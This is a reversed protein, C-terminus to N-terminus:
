ALFKKLDEAKALGVLRAGDQRILAPVGRAGSLEWARQWATATREAEASVSLGGLGHEQALAELVEPRSIDTGNRWLERYLRLELAHAKAPDRALAAAVREIPRRTNPKGKPLAIPVESALRRIGEVEQSLEQSLGPGAPAMPEPLHPAHQVGRWAVRGSLGAQEVREGLAYCFPCNFDSFLLAIVSM